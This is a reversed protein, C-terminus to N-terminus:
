KGDRAERAKRGRPSHERCVTDLTHRENASLGSPNTQAKLIVQDYKDAMFDGGELAYNPFSPM